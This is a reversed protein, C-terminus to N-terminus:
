GGSYLMHTLVAALIPSAEVIGIAIFMATQLTGRIEPNRAVGMITRGIQVSGLDATPEALTRIRLRDIRSTSCLQNIELLMSLLNLEAPPVPDLLEIAMVDEGAKTVMITDDVREVVYGRLSVRVDEGSIEVKLVSGACPVRKIAAALSEAVGFPGVDVLVLVQLLVAWMVVRKARGSMIM